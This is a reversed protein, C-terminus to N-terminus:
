GIQEGHAAVTMRRVTWKRQMAACAKDADDIKGAL